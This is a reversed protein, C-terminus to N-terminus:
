ARRRRRLMALGALGTGLLAYTSPEPVVTGTVASLKIADNRDSWDMDRFAPNYASVIWYRAFTGTNGLAEAGTGADSRSTFVSWNNAAMMQSATAGTLTALPDGSGLWRLVQIDSDNGIWGINLSELRTPAFFDLVLFDVRGDVNDLA